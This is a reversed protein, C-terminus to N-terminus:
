PAATFTTRPYMSNENTINVLELDNQGKSYAIYALNPDRKECYKGVSLSDYKDNEKLFKEPNNNSDIYIKALANYVAQQEMGASLMQELFPLLLKLRNRSEVEGMLWQLTQFKVQELK